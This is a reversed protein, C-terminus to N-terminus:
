KNAILRVLGVVDIIMGASAVLDNNVKFPQTNTPTARFDDKKNLEGLIQTERFYFQFFGLNGKRKGQWSPVLLLPKLVVRPFSFTARDATRGSSNFHIVGVGFGVEIPPAIRYMPGVETTTVRVRFFREDDPSEFRRVDVFFCPGRADPRDLLRLFGSGSDFGHCYITASANGRGDFPGPGSLELLIDWINAKAPRASVILLILALWTGRRMRRM